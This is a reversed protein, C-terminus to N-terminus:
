EWQVEFLNVLGPSPGQSRQTMQGWHHSRRTATTVCHHIDSPNVFLTDAPKETSRSVCCHSIASETIGLRIWRGIAVMVVSLLFPVRWVWDRGFGLTSPQDKDPRSM